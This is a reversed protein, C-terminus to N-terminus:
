TLREHQTLWNANNNEIIELVKLNVGEVVELYVSWDNIIIYYQM